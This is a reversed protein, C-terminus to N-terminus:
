VLLGQELVVGVAGGEDLAQVVEADNRADLNVCAELGEGAGVRDLSPASAEVSEKATGLDAGVKETNKKNYSKTMDRNIQRM